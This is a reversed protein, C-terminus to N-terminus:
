GLPIIANAAPSGMMYAASQAVCETMAEIMYPGTPHTGDPFDTYNAVALSTRGTYTAYDATFVRGAYPVSALTPTLSQFYDPEALYTSNIVNIAPVRGLTTVSNNVSAANPAVPITILLVRLSPYLDLMSKIWLRHLATFMAGYDAYAYGVYMAMGSVGNLNRQIYDADNYGGYHLMLSPSYYGKRVFNSETYLMDYALTLWTVNNDTIVTGTGNGQFGAWTPASGGSTADGTVATCVYVYGNKVLPSVVTGVAYVTAAAWNLQTATAAGVGCPTMFDTTMYHMFNRYPSTASGGCSGRDSGYGQLITSGGWDCAVSQRNLIGTRQAIKAFARVMTGADGSSDSSPITNMTGTGNRAPKPNTGIGMLSLGAAYSDGFSCQSRLLPSYTQTPAQTVLQINRVYCGFATRTAGNGNGFMQLYRLGKALTTSPSVFWSGYGGQSAANDVAWQCLLALGIRNGATDQHEVWLQYMAMARVLIVRTMYNKSFNSIGALFKQNSNTTVNCYIDLNSIGGFAAERILMQWANAFGTEYGTIFPMNGPSANVGTWYVTSAIYGILQDTQIDLSLQFNPVNVFDSIQGNLDILLDTTGALYSDLKMGYTADYSHPASNRWTGGKATIIADTMCTCSWAVLGTANTPDWSVIPVIASM